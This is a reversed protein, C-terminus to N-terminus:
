EVSEPLNNMPQAGLQHENEDQQGQPFTPSVVDGGEDWACAAPQYFYGSQSVSNEKSMDQPM